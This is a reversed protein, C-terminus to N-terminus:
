RLADLQEQIQELQTYLGFLQEQNFQLVIKETEKEEGEWGSGKDLGLQLHAVPCAQRALCSSSTELNLSWGVEKLQRDALSHQRLRDVIARAHISWNQVFFEVRDELVGAVKLQEGLSAPRVMGQAAQQMIYLITHTLHKIQEVKLGLSGSLKEEEEETFVQSCGAALATCVRGVLGSVKGVDTTNVLSLGDQLRKNFQLM